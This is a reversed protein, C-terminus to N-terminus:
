GKVVALPTLEYVIKVLDAQQSMVKSIDKYASTAEDLDKRTQISHIIGLEDLLQKEHVLDLTKIAMSRSMARGAGHSCSTFSEPNGLGEM